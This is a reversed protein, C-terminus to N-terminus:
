KVAELERPTWFANRQLYDARITGVDTSLVPPAQNGWSQRVYTLVSAIQGDTLASRWAPMVGRYVAGSVTVDGQMGDLVLAILRKSPANVWEQATLPPHLNPMGQGEAGHCAACQLQYVQRGDTSNPDNTEIPSTADPASRQGCGSLSLVAVCAIGPLWPWKM